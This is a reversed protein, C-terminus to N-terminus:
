NQNAALLGRVAEEAGKAVIECLRRYEGSNKDLRAAALFENPFELPKGFVARATRRLKLKGGPPMMEYTGFMAVPLIPVGTELYLRGVGRKFMQLKGDRSRTGEPYMFLNYGKKLFEIAKAAAKEKSNKDNRDVKITSGWFYTLDRLIGKIGSMKDVQGIFTYKRPVCLYCGIMWDLHSIHNSVLIYNKNKSFNEKGKVERVLFLPFFWGCLIWSLTSVLRNM